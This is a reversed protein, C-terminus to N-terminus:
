SAASQGRRAARRARTDETHAAKCAACPEEGARWHRQRGAITGCPQPEPLVKYGGRRALRYLRQAERCADCPKEGYRLHRAHAAVTGCPKLARGM